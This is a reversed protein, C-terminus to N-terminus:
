SEYRAHGPPGPPKRRREDAADGVDDPTPVRRGRRRARRAAAEADAVIEDVAVEHLAQVASEDCEEGAALDLVRGLANEDIAQRAADRTSRRMNQDSMAFNVLFVIDPVTM